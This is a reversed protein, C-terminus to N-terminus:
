HVNTLPAVIGVLIGFQSPMAVFPPEIVEFQWLHMPFQAKRPDVPGSREVMVTYTPIRRISNVGHGPRDLCFQIQRMPPVDRYYPVDNFM